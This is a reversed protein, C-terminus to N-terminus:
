TLLVMRYSYAPLIVRNKDLYGALEKFVFVPKSSIRAIHLAKKFLDARMTQDCLRYEFLDLIRTQQDIRTSKPIKINISKPEPFYHEIVWRIDREAEDLDFLRKNAKFYGLQLICCVKSALSRHIDVLQQEPPTLAFYIIREEDSFKPFGYVEEVEKQNLINIRKDASDPL